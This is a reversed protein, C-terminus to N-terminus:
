SELFIRKEINIKKKVSECLLLFQKYTKKEQKKLYIYWNQSMEKEERRYHNLSFSFGHFLIMTNIKSYFCSFLLVHTHKM